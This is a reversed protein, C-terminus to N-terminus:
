TGIVYFTGTGSNLDLYIGNACDVPGCVIMQGASMTVADVLPSVVTGGGSASANRLTINGAASASCFIALVTGPDGAVGKVVTDGTFPGWMVPIGSGADLSLYTSPTVARYWVEPTGVRYIAGVVLSSAAVAAAFSAATAVVATLGAEVTPVSIPAVAWTARGTGVLDDAVSDAVSVTSGAALLVRDADFVNALMVVSKTM